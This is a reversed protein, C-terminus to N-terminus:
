CQSYQRSFQRQTRPRPAYPTGMDFHGDAIHDPNACMRRRCSRHKQRGDGGTIYSLLTKGNYSARTATSQFILCSSDPDPEVRNWFDAGLHEWGDPAQM